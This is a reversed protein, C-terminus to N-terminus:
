VIYVVNITEMGRGTKRIHDIAEGARMKSDITTYKPTMYRGATEDPYGLLWSTNKLDDPSLTALLRRTVEAPMEELLRTRDDPPLSEMVSRVQENSLSEILGEQHDPPLYSFVDAARDRPLLRFVFAEQDPPLAIILDAIDSSNADALAARLEQWNQTRILEPVHQEM